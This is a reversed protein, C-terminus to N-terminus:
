YKSVDDDLSMLSVAQKKGLGGVEDMYNCLVGYNTM